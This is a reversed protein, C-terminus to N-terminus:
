VKVTLWRGRKYYWYFMISTIAGAASIIWWIAVESYGFYQTLFYIPIVELIWSHIINIIMTPTNLGVGIHSEEVMFFIGFFPYGVAFIKLMISGIRVTEESEFFLRILQSSFIFTIVGFFIM